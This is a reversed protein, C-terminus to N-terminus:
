TGQIAGCGRDFRGSWGGFFDVEGGRRFHHFLRNLITLRFLGM